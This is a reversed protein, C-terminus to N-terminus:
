MGSSLLRQVINRPAPDLPEVDTRSGASPCWGSGTGDVGGNESCVDRPIMEVNDAWVRWGNLM